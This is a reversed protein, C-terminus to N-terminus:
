APLGGGLCRSGGIPAFFPNAPDAVVPRLSTAATLGGIREPKPSSLVDRLEKRSSIGLKIFV